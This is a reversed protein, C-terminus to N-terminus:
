TWSVVIKQAASCCPLPLVMGPNYPSLSRHRPPHLEVLEFGLFRRRLCRQFDLPLCQFSGLSLALRRLVFQELRAPTFDSPEGVLRSEAREVEIHQWCRKSVEGRKGLIRVVHLAPPVGTSGVLIQHAM